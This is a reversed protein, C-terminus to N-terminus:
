WVMPYKLLRYGHKARDVLPNFMPAMLWFLIIHRNEIVSMQKVVIWAVLFGSFRFFDVLIKRLRPSLDSLDTEGDRFRIFHGNSPTVICVDFRYLYSVLSARLLTVLKDESSFTKTRSDHFISHM